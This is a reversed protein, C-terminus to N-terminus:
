RKMVRELVELQATLLANQQELQAIRENLSNDVVAYTTFNKPLLDAFDQFFNHKLIMSLKWVTETHLSKKKAYKVMSQPSIGLMRAVVSRRTRNTKLYKLLLAGMEPTPPLTVATSEPKM